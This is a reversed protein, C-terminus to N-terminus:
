TYAESNLVDPWRRLGVIDDQIIQFPPAEEVQRQPQTLAEVDPILGVYGTCGIGGTSKPGFCGTLFAKSPLCGRIEDGRILCFWCRPPLPFEYKSMITSTPGEKDFSDLRNFLIFFQWVFWIRAEVM